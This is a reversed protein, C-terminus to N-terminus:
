LPPVAIASFFLPDSTRSCRGSRPRARSRDLGCREWPKEAKMTFDLSKEALVVRVKRSTPSLLSHYLVRM